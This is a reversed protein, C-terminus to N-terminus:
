LALSCLQSRIWNTGSIKVTLNRFALTKGICHFFDSITKDKVLLVCVYVDLFCPSLEGAVCLCPCSSSLGCHSLLSVFLPKTPHLNLETCVEKVM